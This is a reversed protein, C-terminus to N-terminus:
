NWEQMISQIELTGEISDVLDKLPRLRTLADRDEQGLFYAQEEHLVWQVAPFCVWLRKTLDAGQIAQIALAYFGMAPTFAEVGNFARMLINADGYRQQSFLERVLNRLPVFSGGGYLFTPRNVTGFSCISSQVKLQLAAYRGANLLGRAQYMWKQAQEDMRQVVNPPLLTVAM